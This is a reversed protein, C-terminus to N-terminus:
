GNGTTATPDDSQEPQTQGLEEEEPNDSQEPDEYEEPNDTQTPDDSTIPTLEEEQSNYDSSPYDSKSNEEYFHTYVRESALISIGKVISITYYMDPQLEEFFGEFSSGELYQERNTFDNHLVVKIGDDYDSINIYYYIADDYAQIYDFSAQPGIPLISVGTVGVLLTSAVVAFNRILTSLSNAKKSVDKHAKASTYNDSKYVSTTSTNNKKYERKVILEDLSKTQSRNRPSIDNFENSKKM